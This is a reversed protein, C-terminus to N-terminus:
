CDFIDGLSFCMKGFFLWLSFIGLITAYMSYNSFLSFFKSLFNTSLIGSGSGVVM